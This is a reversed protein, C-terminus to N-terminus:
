NKLLVEVTFWGNQSQINIIGNNKAVIEKVNNIGHGHALKDPKSTKLVSTDISNACTNEITIKLYNRIQKAEFMVIKREQNKAAEIANDLLNGAIVCLDISDVASIMRVSSKIQLEIEQACAMEKKSKLIGDLSAVGTFSESEVNQMECIENVYQLAKPDGAQLLERLGFMQNKVDHLKKAIQKQSQAMDEYRVRESQMKMQSIAMDNKEQLVKLVYEFSLFLVMNSALVFLSIALLEASLYVGDTKEAITFVEDLVLVSMFVSLAYPILQMKSMNGHKIKYSHKIIYSMILTVSKIIVCSITASLEDAFVSDLGVSWIESFILIGLFELAIGFLITTCCALIRTQMNMDFGLSMIAVLVFLIVTGLPLFSLYFCALVNGVVYIAYLPFRKIASATKGGSFAYFINHYAIVEVLATFIYLTLTM